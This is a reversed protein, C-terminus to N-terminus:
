NRLSGPKGQKTMVYKEAVVVRGFEVINEFAFPQRGIGGNVYGAMQEMGRNRGEIAGINSEFRLRKVSIRQSAARAAFEDFLTPTNDTSGNDVLVVEFPRQTSLLLSDLCRRTYESKNHALILVSIHSQTQM